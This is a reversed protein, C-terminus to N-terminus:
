KGAEVDKKEVVRERECCGRKGNRFISLYQEERCDVWRADNWDQKETVETWAGALWDQRRVVGEGTKLAQTAASFYQGKGVNVTM